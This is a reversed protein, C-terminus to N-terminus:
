PVVLLSHRIEALVRGHDDVVRVRYHQFSGVQNPGTRVDFTWQFADGPPPDFEYRVWEPDATEKSPIPYFNQFDFRDFLRRQVEIHIPGGFGDHSRVLVRYPTALGARSVAAHQVTLDVEGGFDSDTATRVGLQGTVGALLFVWLLLTGARRLNLGNRARQVPRVAPMSAVDGAMVASLVGIRTIM